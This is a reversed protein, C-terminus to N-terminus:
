RCIDHAINIYIMKYYKIINVTQVDDGVHALGINSIFSPQEYVVFVARRPRSASPVPMYDVIRTVGACQDTVTAVTYRTVSADNGINVVLWHLTTAKDFQVGVDVLM